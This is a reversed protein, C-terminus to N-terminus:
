HVANKDVKISCLLRKLLNEAAERVRRHGRTRAADINALESLRKLAPAYGLDLYMNRCARIQGKISGRTEEPTAAAIAWYLAILKEKALTNMDM